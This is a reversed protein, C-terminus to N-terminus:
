YQGAFRADLTLRGFKERDEWPIVMMGLVVTGVLPPHNVLSADLDTIGYDSSDQQFEFQAIFGGYPEIYKVRKSLMTHLELGVTGRTVGPKREDTDAAEYPLDTKGNRNIDGPV